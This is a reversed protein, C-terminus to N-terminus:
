PVEAAIAAPLDAFHSIIRTAGAAQLRETHGEFIHGGGAFGWVTMGAAVGASVGNVSDELVLCRGPAARLREAAYLFVDPAPKGEAVLDASYVHPAFIGYLGTRELKSTLFTARSSSAVAVKGVTEAVAEAAARAGPVATLDRKRRRRGELLRAEFDDPATEGLRTEYDARLAAFFADDHMGCYRAVYTPPDYSLGMEALAEREGRISLVESDVLVGDCDFIVADIM